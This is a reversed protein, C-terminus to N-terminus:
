TAVIVGPEVRPKSGQKKGAKADCGQPKDGSPGKGAGGHSGDAALAPTPGEPADDLLAIKAAAESGHRFRDINRLERNSYPRKGLLGEIDDLNLVERCSLRLVFVSVRHVSNVLLPLICAPFYYSINPCLCAM